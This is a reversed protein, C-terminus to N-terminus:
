HRKRKKRKAKKIGSDLGGAVAFILMVIIVGAM